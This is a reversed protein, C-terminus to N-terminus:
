TLSSATVIALPISARSGLTHAQSPLRGSFAGLTRNLLYNASKAWWVACELFAEAPLWCDM